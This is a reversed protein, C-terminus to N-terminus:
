TSRGGQRGDQIRFFGLSHRTAVLLCKTKGYFSTFFVFVNNDVIAAFREM